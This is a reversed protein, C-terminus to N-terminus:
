RELHKWSRGSVISYITNVHLNFKKAIEKSSINKRLKLIELVDNETIKNTIEWKTKAPRWAKKYEFCDWIIHPKIMFILNDYSEKRFILIPQKKGSYKSSVIEIKPNLNFVNLKSKLMEMEEISFSNTAIVATRQKVNNHGDDTFWISIIKENLQLNEPIIKKGNPYWIKRFLTLNPSRCTQMEYASLYKKVKERHIIGNKNILYENSYIERTKPYYNNFTESIWNVYEKKNISQRLSLSCNTRETRPANLSGDGLLLGTLVEKQLESLPECNKCKNGKDKNMRKKIIDKINNPRICDKWSKGRIINSISTNWLNYENALEYSNKGEIYKNIIEQAIEKTITKNM